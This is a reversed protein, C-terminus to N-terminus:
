EDSETVVTVRVLDGDHLRHDVPDVPVDDVTIRIETDEDREDFARDEYQLLHADDASSYGLDPLMELAEALTLREEHMHWRPDEDDEHFHFTWTVEDSKEFLYQPESFDVWEGNIDVVLYGHEHLEDEEGIVPVSETCGTAAITPVTVALGLFRRRTQRESVM